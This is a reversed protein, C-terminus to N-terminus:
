VSIYVSTVCKRTNGLNEGSVDEGPDAVVDGLDHGEDLLDNVVPKRLNLSMEKDLLM